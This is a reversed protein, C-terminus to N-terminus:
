PIVFDFSQNFIVEVAVPKGAEVGPKFRYRSLADAVRADLGWGLPQRLVIRAPAGSPDVVLVAQVTGKIRGARAEPTMEPQPKKEPQPQTLDAPVKGNAGLIVQGKLSDAPWELQPLFYHSWYTPLSREFAPDMGQSFVAHLEAEVDHAPITVRLHEEKLPHREFVHATQNYGIAVRTGELQLEGTPRKSVKELDMGALTWDATKPSGKPHGAADFDLETGLYAGRLILARGIWAQAALITPDTEVPPPTQALLSPACIAFLVASIRAPAALRM